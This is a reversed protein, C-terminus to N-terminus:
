QAIKKFQYDRTIAENTSTYHSQLRLSSASIRGVCDIGTSTGGNVSFRVESRSILYRGRYFSTEAKGLSSFIDDLNRGPALISDM